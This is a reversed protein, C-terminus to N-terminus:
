IPFSVGFECSYFTGKFYNVGIIGCIMFFMLSIVLVNFLSPIAMFLAQIGIKLGKNKSIVRLPRLVRLLRIIKVIKMKDSTIIMSIIAIVVVTFDIINWGNRLYSNEENFLFGHSIIKLVAEFIFFATLIYDSTKLVKVLTSNPNNLPNDLALLVSSIAILLLIFM